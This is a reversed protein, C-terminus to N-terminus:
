VKLNKTKNSTIRKNFTTLKNDFYSKNVSDAQKLSAAFHEAILKNFEPTNIYKAHGPIKNEVESIKTRLVTKTVVSSTDTIKNEVENIKTNLVITTVIRLLKIIQQM